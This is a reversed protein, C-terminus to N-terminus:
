GDAADRQAQGAGVRLMDIFLEVANHATRWRGVAPGDGRRTPRYLLGFFSPGEMLALPFSSERM